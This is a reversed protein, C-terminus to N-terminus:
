RTLNPLILLHINNINPPYNPRFSEIHIYIPSISSHLLIYSLRPGRSQRSTWKRDFNDNSVLFKNRTTRIVRGTFLIIFPHNTQSFQFVLDSFYTYMNTARYTKVLTTSPLHLSSSLSAHEERIKALM